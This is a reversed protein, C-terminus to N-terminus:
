PIRIDRRERAARLEPQSLRSQAVPAVLTWHRGVPCRQFRWWGFRLAKVSAGPLWITTFLHGERCRVVTYAGIQYGRRRAVMTGIVNVAVAAVLTEGRHSSGATSGDPDHDRRRSLRALTDLREQGRLYWLARPAIFASRDEALRISSRARL